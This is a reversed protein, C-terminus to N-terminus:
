STVSPGAAGYAFLPMRMLESKTLVTACVGKSVGQLWDAFSPHNFSDVVLQRLARPARIRFVHDTIPAAGSEVLVPTWRVRSGTRPLLIDGRRAVTHREDTSPCLRAAVLRGGQVRGLDSTHLAVINQSEAEKRSVIGRTVTVKLDKLQPGSSGAMTMAKHYRADLRAGPELTTKCIRTPVNADATMECIEVEDSPAGVTDIVLMVTRAETDAFIDGSMEICRVLRYQTMLLARLARYIDGDAFGIPLVIVVRGRGARATLLSRALFQIEARDLGRKGALGKFARQLWGYRDQAVGVFPPNGVVGVRGTLRAAPLRAVLGDGCRIDAAALSEQAVGVMARDVDFGIARVDPCRNQVAGLLAGEGVAFDVVTDCEGLERAVLKAVRTPTMYQGLNKNVFESENFKKRSLIM